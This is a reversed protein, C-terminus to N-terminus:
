HVNKSEKTVEFPDKRLSKATLIGTKKKLNLEAENIDYEGFGPDKNGSPGIREMNQEIYFKHKEGKNINNGKPVAWYFDRSKLYINM